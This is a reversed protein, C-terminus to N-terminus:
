MVPTDPMLSTSLVLKEKQETPFPAQSSRGTNSPTIIQGYIPFHGSFTFINRVVFTLHKTTSFRSCTDNGLQTSGWAPSDPHNQVPLQDHAAQRAVSQSATGKGLTRRPCGAEGEPNRGVPSAPGHANERGRQAETERKFSLSAM